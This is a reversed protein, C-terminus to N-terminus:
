ILTSVPLQTVTEDATPGAAALEAARLAEHAAVARGWRQQANQRSTGTREGIEAWSYGARRLGAVAGVISADLQSQLALMQGLSEIDGEDGIRRVLAKLGRRIFGLFESTERYLGAKNTKPARVDRERTITSMDDGGHSDDDDTGQMDIM